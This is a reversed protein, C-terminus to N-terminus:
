EHPIEFHIDSDNSDIDSELAIETATIVADEDIITPEELLNTANAALAVLSKPYNQIINVDDKENSICTRDFPIYKSDDVMKIRDYNSVTKKCEAIKQSYEAGRAESISEIRKIEARTEDSILETAATEFCDLKQSFIESLKTDIVANEDKKAVESKLGSTYTKYEVDNIIKSSDHANIRHKTLDTMLKRQLTKFEMANELTPKQKSAMKLLFELKKKITSEDAEISLLENNNNDNINDVQTKCEGDGNNKSLLQYKEWDHLSM